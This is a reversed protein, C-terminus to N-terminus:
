IPEVTNENMVNVRPNTEKKTNLLCDRFRKLIRKVCVTLTRTWWKIDQIESVLSKIPFIIQSRPVKM